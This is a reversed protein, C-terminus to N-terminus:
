QAQSQQKLHLELLSPDRENTQSTRSASENLCTEDPREVRGNEKQWALEITKESKGFLSRIIFILM